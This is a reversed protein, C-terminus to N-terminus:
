NWNEDFDLHDYEDGGSYGDNFDNDFEDEDYDMADEKKAEFIKEPPNEPLEGFSFLLEPLTQGSTKETVDALEVFFTWMSFFDYVYILKPSAENMVEEITTTAMLKTDSTDSLDFLAIELDQNWEEDCTYFSAMENGAFGFSQSITNHLDELSANKDIALDRFIDEKADLIVRIKYVMM